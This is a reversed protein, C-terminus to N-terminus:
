RPGGDAGQLDPVVARLRELDVAGTRVVRLADTTADM